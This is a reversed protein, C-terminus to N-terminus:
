SAGPGVTLTGRVEDLVDPTHDVRFASLSLRAFARRYDEAQRRDEVLVPGHLLHLM